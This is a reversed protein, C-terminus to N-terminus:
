EGGGSSPGRVVSGARRHMEPRELASKRLADIAVASLAFLAWEAPYMLRAGEWFAISSALSFGLAYAILALTSGRTEHNRLGAIGGALSLLWVGYTMGKGAGDLVPKRRLSFILEQRFYPRPLNTWIDRALVFAAYGPHAGLTRRADGMVTRRDEAARGYDFRADHRDRGAVVNDDIWRGHSEALSKTAVAWYRSVALQDIVSYRFVGSRRGNLFAGAVLLAFPLALAGAVIRWRARGRVGSLFVVIPSLFFWSEFIPKCALAGAALVSAGIALRTRRTRGARWLLMFASLSLVGLLSDALVLKSLSIATFSLACLNAAVLLAIRSRIGADVLFRTLLLPRLASLASQFLLVSRVGSGFAGRLVSLVAPYGMPRLYNFLGGASLSWYEPEDGFLTSPRMSAGLRFPLLQAVLAVLAIAGWELPTLAGPRARGSAAAAPTTM